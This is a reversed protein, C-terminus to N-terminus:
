KMKRLTKAYDSESDNLEENWSKQHDEDEDGTDKDGRAAEQLAAHAEHEDPSGNVIYRPVRLRYPIDRWRKKDREWFCTLRDVATMPGRILAGGIYKIDSGHRDYQYEYEEESPSTAQVPSSGQLSPQARALSFEQLSRQTPSSGQSPSRLAPSAGQTKTSTPPPQPFTRKQQITEALAQLRNVTATDWGLTRLAEATDEDLKNPKQKVIPRPRPAVSCLLMLEAVSCSIIRNMGKLERHPM